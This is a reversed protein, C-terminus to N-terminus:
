STLTVGSLRFTSSCLSCLMTAAKWCTLAAHSCCWTGALAESASWSYGRPDGHARRAAEAIKM